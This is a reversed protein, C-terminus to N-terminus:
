LVWQVRCEKGVRREESRVDAVCDHLKNAVLRATAPNQQVVLRALLPQDWCVEVEELQTLLSLAPGKPRTRPRQARGRRVRRAATRRPRPRCRWSQSPCSVGHADM